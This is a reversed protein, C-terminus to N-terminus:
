LFKSMLSVPTPIQRRYIHLPHSRRECGQSTPLYYERQRFTIDRFDIDTDFRHIKIQTDRELRDTDKFDIYRAFRDIEFKEKERLDIYRQTDRLEIDSEFRHTERRGIRINREIEIEKLHM